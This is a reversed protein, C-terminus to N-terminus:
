TRRPGPRTTPPPASRAAARRAGPRIPARSRGARKGEERAARDAYAAAEEALAGFSRAAARESAGDPRAIAGTGLTPTVKLTSAARGRHVRRAQQGM